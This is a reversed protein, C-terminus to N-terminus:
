AAVSQQCPYFKANRWDDDRINRNSYVFANEVLTRLASRIDSSTLGGGLHRQIERVSRGPRATVYRLIRTESTEDRPRRATHRAQIDQFDNLRETVWQIAWELSARSVSLETEPLDNPEICELEVAMATKLAAHSVRSVAADIETGGYERELEATWDNWRVLGDDALNVCRTGTGLKEYMSQLYESLATQERDVAETRYGVPRRQQVGHPLVPLFRYLYGNTKAGQPLTALFANTVSAGFISFWPRSVAYREGFRRVEADEGDHLRILNQLIGRMYRKRFEEQFGGFEDKVFLAAGDPLTSFERLLGEPTYDTPLLRQPAAASLIDRGFKLSTSKRYVTSEALLVIWLNTRVTGTAIRLELSPGAVAALQAVAAATHFSLPADTRGAAYDVYRGIYGPGTMVDNETESIGTPM